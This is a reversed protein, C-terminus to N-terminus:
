GFVSPCGNGSTAGQIQFGRNAVRGSPDTLTMTVYITEGRYSTDFAGLVFRYTNRALDRYTRSGSTGISSSWNLELTMRDNNADDIKVTVGITTSCDSDLPVNGKGSYANVIVPASPGLTTTPAVTTSPVVTTTTRPVTTTTRPVTTTTRPVTTTTRPVTTTTRPVTTTNAPTILALADIHAVGVDRGGLGEGVQFATEWPGVLVYDADIPGGVADDWMSTWGVEYGVSSGDFYVSWDTTADAGVPQLCWEGLADTLTSSLPDDVVGENADLSRILSVSVGEVPNLSVSDVVRGCAKGMEDKSSVLVATTASAGTIVVAAAVLPTLGFKSVLTSVVPIKPM